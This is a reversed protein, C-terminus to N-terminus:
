SFEKDSSKKVNEVVYNYFHAVNKILDKFWLIVVNGSIDQNVIPNNICYCFANYLLKDQNTDIINDMNLFRGWMVCMILIIM